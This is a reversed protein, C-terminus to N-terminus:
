KNVSLYCIETNVHMPLLLAALVKAHMHHRHPAVSSCVWGTFVCAVVVCSAFSDNPRVADTVYSLEPRCAISFMPNVFFVVTTGPTHVSM